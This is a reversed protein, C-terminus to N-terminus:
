ETIAETRNISNDYSYEGFYREEAEKRAKVADEYKEYRGLFINKGNYSIFAMWKNKSKDFTVGPCGSTNNSQKSKNYCNNNQTTIRLNAKRNDLPNHNIHDVVSKCEKCLGMIVRHMLLTENKHKSYLYGLKSLYWCKDKIKYYDDKDFYFKVGNLTYGIGYEGSLNYNNRKTYNDKCYKSAVEKQLCGCSFTRKGLSDARISLLKGDCDCRCIWYTRKTKNSRYDDHKVVVLRGYRNGVINNCSSNM